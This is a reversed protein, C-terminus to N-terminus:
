MVGWGRSLGDEHAAVSVAGSALHSLGRNELHFRVRQDAETASKARGYFRSGDCSLGRSRGGRTSRPVSRARCREAERVHVSFRGRPALAASGDGDRARGCRCECRRRACHRARPRDVRARRARNRRELGLLQAVLRREDLLEVRGANLLPLLAGYIDSKSREAQQYRIGHAGFRDAPWAGAYADGRVTTVRYSKLLAAYEAVVADPSFPPRRERICDLVGREGDRHAIALTFSDASGGSPDVFTEYHVGAAPPLERRDPVICAMVAERSVFGEVDRRFQAGYEAAARAEDDGYAAAILAPDISPNMSRTDAQWTLVPDGEHGHHREYARWLEGRRAYPSSIGILLAEPVSAMGPKLAAVIEQDPNASEDTPWYAVEDLIACVISYGRVSRYSATHIEIDIGNTLRLAERTREAVLSALMPCGDFLAAVYRFVVRAQRRDAAIVMAVGREGPALQYRRFAAAYVALLAAVRSKGGRRGVIVWAERAPATPRTTRGTHRQYLALANGDIPLGYVAAMFALWAGWTERPQFFRAFLNADALSELITM